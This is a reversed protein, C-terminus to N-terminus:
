SNIQPPTQIVVPIQNAMFSLSVYSTKRIGHCIFSFHLYPVSPASFIYSICFGENENVFNDISYLSKKSSCTM